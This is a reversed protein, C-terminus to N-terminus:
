EAPTESSEEPDAKDSLRRKQGSTNKKPKEIKDEKNEEKLSNHNETVRDRICM